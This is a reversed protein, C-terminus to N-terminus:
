DASLDGPQLLTQGPGRVHLIRVEKEVVTFVARYQRGHRTKFFIQRIELDVFENEPALAFGLPKEALKATAEEFAALWRAAGQPSREALWAVTAEVEREARRLLVVRFRM